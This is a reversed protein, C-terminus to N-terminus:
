ARLFIPKPDLIRSGPDPFFGFGSGCCQIWTNIHIRIKLFYWDNVEFNNKEEVKKIKKSWLIFLLRKSFHLTRFRLIRLRIRSAFGSGPDPNPDLVYVHYFLLRIHRRGTTVNAM